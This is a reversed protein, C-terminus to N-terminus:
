IHLASELQHIEEATLLRHINLLMKLRGKIRAKGLLCTKFRDGLEPADEIHGPQLTFVETLADVITGILGRYGECDIQAVIISTRSTSEVEPMAFRLRLDIVPILNGRVNIVGRVYEPTQPVRMIAQIGMIERIPLVQIAFDEKDLRFGLYKGARKDSEQPLSSGPLGAVTSKM